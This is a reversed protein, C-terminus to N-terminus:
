EKTVGTLRKLFRTLTRKSMFLELENEILSKAHTLRQRETKVLERVTDEHADQNLIPKRGQGPRNKLDAVDELEYRTVRSNIISPHKPYGSLTSIYKASHGQSKLLVIHANQRIKHSLGSVYVNHLEQEQANTLKPTRKKGM